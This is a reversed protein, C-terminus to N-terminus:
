AVRLNQPTSLGVFELSLPESFPSVLVGKVAKVKISYNGATRGAFLTDASVAPNTVSFSALVGTSNSLEAVYSDASAVADWIVSQGLSIQM